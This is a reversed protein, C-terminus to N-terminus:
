QNDTKGPPKTTKQKPKKQMNKESQDMLKQENAGGAEDLIKEDQPFQGDKLKFDFLKEIHVWQGDVWKFGQFDGDPVYTDKKEPEDAEPVLDDFVIMDLAPDYNFTTIAEKKYEINFRVMTNKRSLRSTDNRFSIYPGGFVPEGRENFTLVEMWKKNSSISYDDFGLLTYFKRGNYTKLIIRYYIAGIWNLPSRVSDLPKATFMSFDHLGILKLSGDDTRMQIAGRQLYFYEDKKLQWTFIRFSSDPAYLRSITQLSDLPYYFSHQLKLTRVLMRIFFSDSRLRQEPKDAFVINYAFQKLSDERKQFERTEAPSLIQACVAGRFIIVGLFAIIWGKQFFNMTLGGTICHAFKSHLVMLPASVPFNGNFKV